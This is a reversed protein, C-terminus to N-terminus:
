LGKEWMDASSLKCPITSVQARIQTLAMGLESLFEGYFGHPQLINDAIYGVSLRRKPYCLCEYSFGTSAKRM